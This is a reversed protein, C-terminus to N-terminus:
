EVLGIAYLDEFERFGPNHADTLDVDGIRDFPLGHKRAYSGFAGLSNANNPDISLEVTSLGSARASEVVADILLQSIGQRRHSELVGVQWLLARNGEVVSTAFGIPTEGDFALYCAGGFM